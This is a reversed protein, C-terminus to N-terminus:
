PRQALHEQVQALASQHAPHNDQTIGNDGRLRRFYNMIKKIITDSDESGYVYAGIEWGAGYSDQNLTDVGDTIDLDNFDRADDWTAGITLGTDKAPSEAGITYIDNSEDTFLPDAPTPSNSDNNNFFAKWTEWVNTASGFYWRNTLNPGYYINYDIDDEAFGTASTLYILYDGATETNNYFINNKAIFDGESYIGYKNNVFVNGYVLNDYSNSNFRLGGNTGTNDRIINYLYENVDSHGSLTNTDYIAAWGGANRVENYQVLVGSVYQIVIEARGYTSGVQSNGYVTNGEIKLNGRSTSWNENMGIGWWGNGYSTNNKIVVDYNGTSSYIGTYTNNYTTNGEILVNHTHCQDIDGQDDGNIKIGHEGAGTVTCNKITVNYSPVGSFNEDGGIIQIGGSADTGQCIIDEIWWDHGGIAGDGHGGTDTTMTVCESFGDAITFGIIKIFNYPKNGNTGGNMIGRHWATGTDAITVVESNYTSLTFWETPNETLGGEGGADSINVMEQYSGTRVYVTDGSGSVNVAEQVTNYANGDSGTCSRNAISYDASTCDTGSPLSGDAYTTTSWAMAPFLLIIILIPILKKM